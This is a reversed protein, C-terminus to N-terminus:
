WSLVEDRIAPWSSARRQAYRLSRQRHTSHRHASRARAPRVEQAQPHVWPEASPAVWPEAEQQVERRRAGPRVGQQVEVAVVVPGEQQVDRAEPVERQAAAQPQVEAGPVAAAGVVQPQEAVAGLEAAPEQRAEPGARREAPAWRQAQLETLAWAAQPVGRVDRARRLAGQAGHAWHLAAPRRVGWAAQLVELRLVELRLAPSVAQLSWEAQRM